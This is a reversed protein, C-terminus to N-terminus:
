LWGMYNGASFSETSTRLFMIYDLQDLMMYYVTSVFSLFMILENLSLCHICIRYM